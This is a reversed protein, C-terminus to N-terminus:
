LADWLQSICSAEAQIALPTDFAPASAIYLKSRAVDLVAMKIDPNVYMRLANEMLWTIIAARQKKLPDKKFYLKILYQHGNLELGIEPNVIIELDGSLCKGRYPIFYRVPKSSKLFRIYAKVLQTYNNHKRIGSVIESADAFEDLAKGHEHFSKIYERIQKYYDTKPQYAPKKKIANIKNLKQPWASMMIEAFQVMNMQKSM